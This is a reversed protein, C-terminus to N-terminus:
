EFIAKNLLCKFSISRQGVLSGSKQRGRSSHMQRELHSCTQPVHQVPRLPPDQATARVRVARRVDYGHRARRDAHDSRRDAARIRSHAASPTDRISFALLIQYSLHVTAFITICELNKFDNNNFPKSLAYRSFTSIAYKALSNPLANLLVVM